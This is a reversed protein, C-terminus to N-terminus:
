TIYRPKGRKEDLQAALAWMRARWIVLYKAEALGEEEDEGEVDAEEEDNLVLPAGLGAESFRRNLERIRKKRWEKLVKKESDLFIM